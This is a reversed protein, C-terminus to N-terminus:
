DPIGAWPDYGQLLLMKMTGLDFVDLKRDQVFDVARWYPLHTDPVALLWKQFLIVDSIGFEGDANLDGTPIVNGEYDHRGLSIFTCEWEEALTQATSHDFGYILRVYPYGQEAEIQCAPNLLKVYALDQANDFTNKGIKEVTEPLTLTTIGCAHFVSEGITEVGEPIYIDTMKYFGSFANSGISTVGPNLDVQRIDGSLHKWPAGDWDFDEMDGTGSITLLGNEHYEWILNEGCTGKLVPPETEYVYDTRIGTEIDLFSAYHEQAYAQATSGEYGCILGPIDSEIVCKPNLFTIHKLDACYELAYNQVLVTNEPIVLETLGFCNNFAYKGIVSLSEPLVLSELDNFHVGQFYNEGIGTIGEAVVIKRIASVSLESIWSNDTLTGNGSITLVGNEDLVWPNVSDPAAAIAEATVSMLPIATMTGAAQGILLSCTM